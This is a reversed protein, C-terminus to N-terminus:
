FTLNINIDQLDFQFFPPCFDLLDEFSLQEKINYYITDSDNIIFISPELVEVNKIYPYDSNTNYKDYIINELESEFYRMQFGRKTKFFNIIDIELSLNLESLSTFTTSIDFYNKDIFINVSIKKNLAMSVNNNKKYVPVTYKSELEITNYFCQYVRTNFNVLSRIDQVKFFDNLINFQTQFDLDNFSTEIFPVKLLIPTEEDSYPHLVENAEALISKLENDLYGLSIEDLSVLSPIFTEDNKQYYKFSFQKSILQYLETNNYFKNLINNNVDQVKLKMEFIPEKIICYDDTFLTNVEWTFNNAYDLTFTFSDTEFIYNKDNEAGQDLIFYSKNTNFDYNLSFILGDSISNAKDPVLDIYIKPNVIYMETENTDLYKYYFPSVMDKGGINITPYFPNSAIISEEINKSYTDLIINNNQIKTELANYVYVFNQGNLFKTDIYPKTSSDGFFVEFDNISTLSKRYSIKNFIDQKIDNINQINKGDEGGNISIGNLSYKTLDVLNSETTIKTDIDSLIFSLNNFNGAEGLTEEICILIEDNLNLYKGVRGDGTEFAISTDFINMFLDLSLRNSKFKFFKNSFEDTGFASKIEDPEYKQIIELPLQEETYPNLWTRISKINKYDTININFKYTTGIEYEPVVIKKYTRKLQQVNDYHVLFINANEKTPDPAVTVLLQTKTTKSYKFATVSTDSQIIEIRDMIIFNNNNDDIFTFNSPINFEMTSVNTIPIEPIIISINFKAPDAFKLQTDYISSHFLMSNFDRALSPNMERFLTNYYNAVDYKINALYETIVGLVGSKLLTPNTVNLKDQIINRFETQTIEISQM